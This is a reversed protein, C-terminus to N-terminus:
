DEQFAVQSVAGYLAAEDGLQSPLVKLAERPPAWLYRHLTALMAPTFHDWAGVIAGGVVIVHPDLLNVAHTLALGLVMGYREWAKVAAEDGKDALRSVDQPTEGQGGLAHFTGMIGRISVDDEWTRGDEQWPTPGYEAATGTAGHHIQGNLVIGWGFGTGLTVALVYPYGRGAGLHAEGLAFVNGDNDLWVPVQSAQIMREKLPFQTLIPINPTELIIGRNIDMPGPSGIGIGALDTLTGGLDQLGTEISAQIRRVLEDGSELTHSDIVACRHTLEWRENFLGTKISSAGIDVGAAYRAM